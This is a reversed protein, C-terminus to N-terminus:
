LDGRELMDKLEEIEEKKIGSDCRAMAFSALSGGYLKDLITRSASALYERETILPSYYNVRGRKEVALFGKDCLRTLLTLITTSALHRSGEMASEIDHRSVPPETGWVLKMIAFESEPLRKMKKM